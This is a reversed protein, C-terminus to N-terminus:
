QGCGVLEIQPANLLRQLESNGAAVSYLISTDNQVITVFLIDECLLASLSRNSALIPVADTTLGSMQRMNLTHTAAGSEADAEVVFWMMNKSIIVSDVQQDPSSTLDPLKDVGGGFRGTKLIRPATLPFEPGTDGDPAPNSTFVITKGDETWGMLLIARGTSATTLEQYKDTKLDIISLKTPTGCNNDDYAFAVYSRDPSFIYSFVDAGKPTIRQTTPLAQKTKLLDSVTASYLAHPGRCGWFVSTEFYVKTGDASWAVATPVMNGFSTTDSLDTPMAAFSGGFEIKQNSLL